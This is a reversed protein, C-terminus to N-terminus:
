EAELAPTIPRVLAAAFSSADRLIVTFATAGHNTAVSIVSTRESETFSAATAVIGNPRKPSTSSMASVTTKKADSLALYMVPWTIQTSPPM